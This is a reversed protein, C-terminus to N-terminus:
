VELKILLTVDLYGPAMAKMIANCNMIAKIRYVSSFSLQVSVKETMVKAMLTNLSVM